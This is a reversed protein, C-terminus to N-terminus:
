GHNAEQRKRQRDEVKRIVNRLEVITLDDSSEVPRGALNSLDVLWAARVADKDGEPKPEKGYVARLRRRQRGLEDQDDETGGGQTSARKATTKRAPAPKASASAADDDDGAPAVGTVALLAYRRGYSIASGIQQPTPNAPILLPMEGSEREGSDVHVLAYALVPRGDASLTPRCIWVLGLATLRPLVAETVASLGAFQYSYSGKQTEVRATEGKHVQPLDRQLQLLAAALPSPQETM